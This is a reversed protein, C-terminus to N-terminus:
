MEIKEDPYFNTVELVHSHVKARYKQFGFIDVINKSKAGVIFYAFLIDYGALCVKPKLKKVFLGVPMQNAGFKTCLYSLSLTLNLHAIYTGYPCRSPIGM